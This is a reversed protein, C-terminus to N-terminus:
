TAFCHLDVAKCEKKKDNTVVFSQKYSWQETSGGLLYLSIKKLM